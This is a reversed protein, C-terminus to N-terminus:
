KGVGIKFGMSKLTDNSIFNLNEKYFVGMKIKGSYVLNMQRAIQMMKPIEDITIGLISIFGLYGIIKDSKIKLNIENLSIPGKGHIAICFLDDHKNIIKKCEKEEETNTRIKISEFPINGDYFYFLELPIIQNLKNPCLHEIIKEYAYCGYSHHGNEIIEESSFWYFGADEFMKVKKIETSHNINSKVKQLPHKQVFEKAMNLATEGYMGYVPIKGSAIDHLITTAEYSGEEAFKELALVLVALKLNLYSEPPNKIISIIAPVAETGLNFFEEYTPTYLSAPGVWNWIQDKIKKDSINTIKKPENNKNIIKELKTKNSLNKIAENKVDNLKSVAVERVNISLDNKAIQMLLASDELKDIAAMRVNEDIDNEAVEKIVKQDNIKWIAKRREVWNTSKLMKLYNPKFISM